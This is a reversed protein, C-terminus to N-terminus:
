SLKTVLRSSWDGVSSSAFLYCDGELIQLGPLPLLLRCLSRRCPSPVPAPLVPDSADVLINDCRLDGHVVGAGHLRGVAALVERRVEWSRPAAELSEGAARRAGSDCQVGAAACAARIGTRCSRALACAAARFMRDVVEQSARGENMTILESSHWICPTSLSLGCALIIQGVAFCCAVDQSGEACRSWGSERFTILCGRRLPPPASVPRPVPSAGEGARHQPHREGVTGASTQWRRGRVGACQCCDFDSFLAM